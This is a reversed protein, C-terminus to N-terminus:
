SASCKTSTEISAHADDLGHHTFHHLIRLMLTLIQISTLRLTAYQCCGALAYATIGNTHLTPVIMPGDM